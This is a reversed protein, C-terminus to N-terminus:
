DFCTESKLFLKKMKLIYLFFCLSVPFLFIRLQWTVLCWAVYDKKKKKLVVYKNIDKMM